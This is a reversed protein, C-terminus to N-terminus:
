AAGGNLGEFNETLCSGKEGEDTLTEGRLADNISKTGLVKATTVLLTFPNGRKCQGIRNLHVWIAAWYGFMQFKYRALSDWAKQEAEDMALRIRNDCASVDLPNM